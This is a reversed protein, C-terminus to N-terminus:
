RMGALDEPRRAAAHTAHMEVLALLWALTAEAGQNQNVRQPHLGDYCGGTTADYLSLGVDNRGLFWDFAKQAEDLWHRDGTVRFAEISASVMACAEIPQQDFRARQGARRYFGPVGIPAFHGEEATQLQALWELAHLGAETMEGRMLWRGCLLLAHPLRANDYTLEYEFWCWDDSRTEQFQKFLREALQERVHKASSDGYYRRLYEHIAILTHAWGRPSTFELTAGLAQTFMRGAVSRLRADSSRGAVTGLAWMARGHCDESGATEYWTREYSLVNRFRRNDKDLAHWLFAMYRESLRNATATLEEDGRDALLTTLILARANDDTAYGEDYNPVKGVAHQLLGTQDTLRQLHMINVPPLEAPRRLSVRTHRAGRPQKSRDERARAFARMYQRAVASWVMDRGHMYARKRIAHREAENDLLEIMANAIAEPDKFPVLRGRGDDLLEQAHWYPTSVVAKGTGVAYALTGSTIQQESLYPTVYLDAAGIYEVLEELEVFRNHFIVNDGVGLDRALKQLSERYAEGEKEIWYPHTAGLVLYVVKPHKKVIRPMAQIAYEIGKSPALLGFTLIMTKGEVGFRDKYFNPDVFPVDPIGHPILEIKDPHVDHIDRLFEVGRDSMTVLKDSLNVLEEFVTGYEPKPPERLITHCTTVIPMRLRRLLELVHAGAPGGFIGFEHQVCVLDVNNLEIFDAARHYSALEQEEIEFRVRPPYAYGGPIDNVALAFCQLDQYEGALAECLDSTFTAIGCHRPVYNGIVAIRRIQAQKRPEDTSETPNVIWNPKSSM